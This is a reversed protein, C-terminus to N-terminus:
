AAFTQEVWGRSRRASADPDGHLQDVEIVLWGDFDDGLQALVGPIDLDGSGPELFFPQSAVRDYPGPNARNEALVATSHDKIHLDIVRDRHRAVMAVPDIGAWALHGLDFSAGLVEPDVEALVTEIEEETEVWTGVHNHLGARVGEARLIRGAEALMDAQRLLRDRDALYGVAARESWRPLRYDVMPALFVTDLGFYLSEEAKRRVPNFWRAWEASGPAIELGEDEPLGISAYGPAVRLGAREIMAAYSQLTQTDLVEMMTADFGSAAVAALVEPYDAVFSPEGYRWRGTSGPVAPDPPLNTWQIPNLAVQSRRITM